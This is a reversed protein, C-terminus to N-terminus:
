CCGANPMIWYRPTISKNKLVFSVVNKWDEENLNIDLEGFQVGDQHAKVDEFSVVPSGEKIVKKVGEEDRAVVVLMGGSHYCSTLESINPFIFIKM